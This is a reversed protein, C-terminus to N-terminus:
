GGNGTIVALARELILSNMKARVSSGFEAEWGEMKTLRASITSRKSAKESRKDIVLAALTLESGTVAADLLAARAEGMAKKFIATEVAGVMQM